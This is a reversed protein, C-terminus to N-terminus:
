RCYIPLGNKVKIVKTTMETGSLMFSEDERTAADAYAAGGPHNSGNLTCNGALSSQSQAM